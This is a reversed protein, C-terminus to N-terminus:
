TSTTHRRASGGKLKGEPTLEQDRIDGHKQDHYEKTTENSLNGPFPMHIKLDETVGYITVNHEVGAEMLSANAAAEPVIVDPSAAENIYENSPANHDLRYVALICACVPLSSVAARHQSSSARINM